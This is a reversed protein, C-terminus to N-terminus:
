SNHDMTSNKSNIVTDNFFLCLLKSFYNYKKEIELTNDFGIITDVIFNIM